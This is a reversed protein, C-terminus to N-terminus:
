LAETRARRLDRGVVYSTIGGMGALAAVMAAAVAPALVAALGRFATLFELIRALGQALAAPLSAAWRLVSGGHVAAHGAAKAFDAVLSPLGPLVFITLAAGLILAATAAWVLVRRSSTAELPPPGLRRVEALVRASVDVRFPPEGRLRGLDEILRSEWDGGM